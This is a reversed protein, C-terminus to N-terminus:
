THQSVNLLVGVAALTFILSSGGYSIFPLPIGKNPVLSVVVSFNILAQVVVMATVGVALLRGF